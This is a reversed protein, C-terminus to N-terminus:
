IANFNTHTQTVLHKLFNDQNIINHIYSIMPYLTPKEEYLIYIFQMCRYTVAFFYYHKLTEFSHNHYPM